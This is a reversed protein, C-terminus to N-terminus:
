SIKLHTVRPKEALLQNYKKLKELNALYEEAITFFDNGKNIIRKRIAEMRIYYGLAVFTSKREKTIRIYIPYEGKM